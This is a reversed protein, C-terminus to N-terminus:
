YGVLYSSLSEGFLSALGQTKAVPKIWSEITIPGDVALQKKATCALYDDLGDFTLAYGNGQKIWNAGYITANLGNGSSDAALNGQGEDFTWEALLGSPTGAAELSGTLLIAFAMLVQLRTVM